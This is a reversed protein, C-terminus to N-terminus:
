RSNAIPALLRLPEEGPRHVPLCKRPPISMPPASWSLIQGTGRTHSSASCHDRWESVSSSFFLASSSRATVQVSAAANRSLFRKGPHLEVYANLERAIARLEDATMEPM